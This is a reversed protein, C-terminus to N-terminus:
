IADNMDVPLEAVKMEQALRLKWGGADDLPVFLVGDYDSPFDIEGKEGKHLAVVRERGLQGLFYGLELIVNQRARPKQKQSSDAPGGVDDPTLLVVAFAVDSYALFKEIIAKSRNPQEHLIIPQLHLRELFRAVGQKAADDRGHVLFVKRSAPAKRGDEANHKNAAYNLKRPVESLWKLRKKVADHFRQWAAGSDSYSSGARLPSTSLSSWEASMGSGPFSEDLWAAVARDWGEFQGDAVQPHSQILIDRAAAALQELTKLEKSM